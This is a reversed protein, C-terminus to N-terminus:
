PEVEADGGAAVPGGPRYVDYNRAVFVGYGVAVAVGVVATRGLGDAAPELVLVAGLGALVAGTAGTFALDAALASAPQEQLLATRANNGLPTYADALALVAPVVAGAAAVTATWRPLGAAGLATALAAFLAVALAGVGVLAGFARTWPSWDM